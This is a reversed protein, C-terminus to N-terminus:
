FQPLRRIAGEEIIIEEIDCIHSKGCSCQKEKQLYEKWDM